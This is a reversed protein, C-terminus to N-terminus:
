FFVSNANFLYSFNFMIHNFPGLRAVNQVFNNWNHDLIPCYHIENNNWRFCKFINRFLLRNEWSFGSFLCRNTSITCTFVFKLFSITEFYSFFLSGRSCFRLVDCLDASIKIVQANYYFVRYLRHVPIGNSINVFRCLEDNYRLIVVVLSALVLVRLCTSHM